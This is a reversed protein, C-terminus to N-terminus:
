TGHALRWRPCPALRCQGQERGFSKNLGTLPRSASSSAAAPSILGTPLSHRACFRVDTAGMRLLASRTSDANWDDTPLAAIACSAYSKRPMRRPAKRQRQSPGPAHAALESAGQPLIEITIPTIRAELRSAPCLSRPFPFLYHRRSRSRSLGARGGGPYANPLSM